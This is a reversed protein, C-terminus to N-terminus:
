SAPSSQAFFACLLRSLIQLFTIRPADAQTQIEIMSLTKGDLTYTVSGIVSGKEVPAVLYPPIDLATEIKEKQGKPLLLTIDDYGAQVASLDSGRLPIPDLTKGKLTVTEYHSFGYDLLKKATENREDRTKAGMVVAILTMDDKTAVASMCFGAKDTSGTKLGQAGPYFRILRNTNTLTFAGNRISDMWISSYTLILPHKTILERSSIAIDRASYIHNQTTDDLGTPNEFHSNEMGLQMARDNMAAVFANVDGSVLEALAVAADNGSAIVVSKILDEVTIQEGEKLYVQSGGMSAAYASVTVIDNLAFKGADLAEMTLLLTMIKTVSAPPLPVDANWEALVTGSTAEMLIASPAAIDFPSSASTASGEGMASFPPLLLLLALLASALRKLM